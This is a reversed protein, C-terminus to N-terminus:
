EKKGKAQKPEDDVSTLSYGSEPEHLRGATEWLAGPSTKTPTEAAVAAPEDPGHMIKSHLVYVWVAFLLLYILGFLIISALVQDAKIARSVADATRLGEHGEAIKWGSDTKEFKPYVVFPQRGVEAAVWGAQNALYPGVVAFVFVWLLWRQQFLTGRWLLFLSGLTLVIFFTGLGVMLHFAYFPIAVPPRVSEDFEELAPVPAGFDNHLLMSL